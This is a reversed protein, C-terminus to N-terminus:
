IIFGHISLNRIGKRRFKTENKFICTNTKKKCVASTQDVEEAASPQLHPGCVASTKVEFFCVAGEETWSVGGLARYQESM